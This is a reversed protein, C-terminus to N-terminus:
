PSEEFRERDQRQTEPHLFQRLARRVVQAANLEHDFAYEELDLLAQKSVRVVIQETLIPRRTPRRSSKSGGESRETPRPKAHEM